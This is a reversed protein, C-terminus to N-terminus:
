WLVHCRVLGGKEANCIYLMMIRQHCTVKVVIYMYIWLEDGAAIMIIINNNGCYLMINILIHGGRNNSSNISDINGLYYDDKKMIQGWNREM